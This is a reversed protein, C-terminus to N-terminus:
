QIVRDTRVLISPPFTLRLARATKLNVVLEFRTPQEVPLDAPRAGKLVKDVYVATRRYIEPLDAGYSMLGGAEVFRADPFIAPLRNRAALDVIRRMQTAVMPGPLVALAAAREAAMASFASGLEDADRLELIQLQVGLVRAGAAMATVSSAGGVAERLVAVRSVAPFAEKLLQLRKPSLETNLLSVGTVNGGPSALSRVFGQEVADDVGGM